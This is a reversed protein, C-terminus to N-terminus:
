EYLVKFVADLLIKKTFYGGRILEGFAEVKRVMENYQEEAMNEIKAIAEDLTDVVLGLNKESITGAEPISDSVIVPLGAALYLSLKDCANLRMYEGCLSDNTWLLGFGGNKRLTDVLLNQDNFWGLFKVNKGSKLEEEKATVYLTVTDYQWEQVFQFKAQSINGAFNLVKRFRPVMISDISVICDWMKQVVIKRVMLGKTRLFKVMEQSPLIIVDAQNYLNVYTKLLYYNEEFMLPPVDHIFMIIKIKRYANLQRVFAEDFAIGNWSPLQLIVINDFDKYSISSMIGDLRARIMEQSDSSVQYHYIGLEDISFYKKAIDAVMHQCKVATGVMGYINTIHIKM